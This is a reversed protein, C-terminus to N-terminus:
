KDIGLHHKWFEFSTIEKSRRTYDSKVSMYKFLIKILFFVTMFGYKLFKGFSRKTLIGTAGELQYQIVAKKGFCEKVGSRSLPFATIEKKLMFSPIIYGGLTLILPATIRRDPQHFDCRMDESWEDIEELPVLKPAYAFIENNNIEDDCSLFFDIGSLFDNVARFVIPMHAYRYLILNKGSEYLVIRLATFLGYGHMVNLILRNRLIYYELPISMKKDFAEHYVAIGNMTIIKTNEPKRLGYEVDDLKIFFPYPLGRETVHVPMCICWWAGYQINDNDLNNLLENCDRIDLNNKSSITKRGNYAAGMEYQLYPTKESIPLMAASFWSESFEERLLSMFVTMQELTEPFFEIDDDMLIVHSFGADHAEILGRTFGGSGGYNKNPLVTVFGDSLQGSDLTKGNDIVFVRDIFSFNNKKLQEINKMVYKERKFTCIAICANIKKPECESFYEGSLFESDTVATIKPYLFGNKPLDSFDVCLGASNEGETEKIVRENGDFVCLQVIAKGKFACSFGISQVNTHDRYKTYSFSNFYTDFSISSGHTLLIEGRFFMEPCNRDNEPIIIKQLLM